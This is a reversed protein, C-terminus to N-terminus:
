LDCSNSPPAMVNSTFLIFKKAAINVARAQRTGVRKGPKCETATKEEAMNQVKQLM